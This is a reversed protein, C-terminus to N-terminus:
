RGGYINCTSIVALVYSFDQIVHECGFICEVKDFRNLLRVLMPISASYTLVRLSSFGEFIADSFPEHRLYQAYVIHLTDKELEAQELPFLTQM